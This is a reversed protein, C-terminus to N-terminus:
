RELPINLDVVSPAGARGILFRHACAARLKTAPAGTMDWGTALAYLARIVGKHTVAVVPRGAAALAALWPALRAQVDRPSEGGPPRFDLGRAEERAVRDGGATRLDALRRGEWAGWDMEILAPEPRVAAGPGTPRLLAATQRARRLPSTCWLWTEEELESPLRWGQVAARGAPSLPPDRRGQILDAATWATPGHRLVVLPTM